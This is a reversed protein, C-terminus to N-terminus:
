ASRYSPAFEQRGVQAHRLADLLKLWDVARNWSTFIQSVVDTRHLATTTEFRVPDNRCVSPSQENPM